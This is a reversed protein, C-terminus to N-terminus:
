AGRVSGALAIETYAEIYDDSAIPARLMSTPIALADCLMEHDEVIAECLREREKSIAKAQSPSLLGEMLFWGPDAALEELGFLACVRTLAERVEPSEARELAAVFEEHILRVGHAEGLEVALNTHENWAEFIPAGEALRAQFSERLETVKRVERERLLSAHLAVSSLELGERHSAEDAAPAEYGEGMAMQKATKLLVIQNDGEATVFGQNAVWWPLFGNEDFLGAAGCRERCTRIVKEVRYSAAAKIAAIERWSWAIDAGERECYARQSRRVGITLAYAQALGGIVDRQQNRYRLVPVDQHQPAFTKRQASYRAAIWASGRAGSVVSGTLCVRGAQIRDISDLFRARRGKVSCHFTGDDDLRSHAGALWNRKPIRVGHFATMGNDLAYGAKEGMATVEVGPCLSFRDRIRVIFPYVGCDEGRSVLRAMVVALKPVGSAATNPMYKRAQPTPTTIVFEGTAPDYEARTELSVLNNGYGLETALFVGVSNLTELEHIYDELDDGGEGHQVISGLCLSYHISMVTCLTPDVLGAWEHMAFLRRPDEAIERATLGVKDVIFALRRYALEGREAATLGPVTRFLDQSLIETLARRFETPEGNYLISEIESAPHTV